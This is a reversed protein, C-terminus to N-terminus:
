FLKLSKQKAKKKKEQRSGKRDESIGMCSKVGQVEGNRQNRKGLEKRGSEISRMERGAPDAACSSKKIGM